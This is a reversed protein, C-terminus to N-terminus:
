LVFDSATLNYLGTLRIAMEVAKDADNDIWVMTYDNATGSNNFKQFRVEGQTSSSFAATGKWVFMDNTGSTAFADIASLSIKDQGIIFDTIVDTATATTGSGTVGNFIFTDRGAGGTLTDNGMGGDLSNAGTNGVIVNNLTNGTGYIESSGTLTLNELNSGLTLTASSQVLDTGASAAETIADVGDTVYTDNGIGGVLTDAGSGGDLTDNESGGTLSDNGTGGSMTDNGAGGDLTDNNADGVISDDGDMGEVIDNGSGGHLSDNGANGYILDDGANGMILDAGPNSDGLDGHLGDNGSGGYISDSGGDGSVLSADSTNVNIIDNGAAGYAEAYTGSSTTLTDANLTGICIDEINMDYVDSNRPMWTIGSLSEYAMFVLQSGNTGNIVLSDNGDIYMSQFYGIADAECRIWSSGETDTITTVGEYGFVFTDDGAGGEVFNVGNGADIEDDGDGGDLTDNGAGGAIYDDGDLAFIWENGSSGFFNDSHFTGDVRGVGRFTDMTGASYDYIRGSGQRNFLVNVGNETDNLWIQASGDGYIKDNGLGLVVASDGYVYIKDDGAHDFLYGDGEFYVIDDGNTAHVAEVSILTDILGNSKLVTYPSLSGHVSSTLNIKVWDYELGGNISGSYMAVDFGVGGNMTDAGASGIMWDEGEYGYFYDNGSTGLLQYIGKDDGSTGYITNM